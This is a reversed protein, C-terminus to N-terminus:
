IKSILKGIEYNVCAEIQAPDTSGMSCYAIIYPKVSDVSVEHTVKVDRLGTVEVGCGSLAILAVIAYKM